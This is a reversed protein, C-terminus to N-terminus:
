DDDRRDIGNDWANTAHSSPTTIWVVNLLVTGRGHDRPSSLTLPIAVFRTTFVAAGGTGGSQPTIVPIQSGSEIKATRNNLATVRPTAVIKAQGKTEAATILASIQATGILGTTLGIVTSPVNAALVDTTDVSGRAGNNSNFAFASLQVGLDRSFNRNAIVIRTEIQGAARSSLLQVPRM